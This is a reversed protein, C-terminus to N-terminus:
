PQICYMPIGYLTCTSVVPLLVLTNVYIQVQNNRESPGLQSVIAMVRRKGGDDTPATGITLSGGLSLQCQQDSALFDLFSTNTLVQFSPAGFHDAIVREVAALSPLDIPFPLRNLHRLIVELVEGTLLLFSM